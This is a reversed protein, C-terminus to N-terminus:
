RRKMNEIMEKIWDAAIYRLKYRIVVHKYEGCNECLDLGHSLIVKKVSDNTGMIENLCDLCYEAMKIVEIINYLTHM